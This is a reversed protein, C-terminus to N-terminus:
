QKSFTPCLRGRAAISRFRDPPPLGLDKLSSLTADLSSDFQSNGSSRIIKAATLKGDSSITLCADASLAALQSDKITTPVTWATGIKDQLSLIYPDGKAEEATGAKSGNLAGVTTAEAGQQEDDKLTKFLEARTKKLPDTEDKKPDVKSPAANIDKAIKIADTPPREHREKHPLFKMDRPKGFRVLQADVFTGPGPPKAAEASGRTLYVSAFFGIHLALTALLGAIVYARKPRRGEGTHRETTM